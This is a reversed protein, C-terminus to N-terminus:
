TENCQANAHSMEVIAGKLSEKVSPISIPNSKQFVDAKISKWDDLRMMHDTRSIFKALQDTELVRLALNQMYIGKDSQWSSGVRMGCGVGLNEGAEILRELDTLAQSEIKPVVWDNEYFSQTHTQLLERLHQNYESQERMGELWSNFSLEKAGENMTPMTRGLFQNAEQYYAETVPYWNLFGTQESTRNLFTVFDMETTASVLYRLSLYGEITEISKFDMATSLDCKCDKAVRLLALCNKREQASIVSDYAFYVNTM